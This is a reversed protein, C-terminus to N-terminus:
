SAIGIASLTAIVAPAPVLMAVSSMPPACYWRTLTVNPCSPVAESTDETAGMGTVAGAAVRSVCEMEMAWCVSATIDCSEASVGFNKEALTAAELVSEDRMARTAAFFSRM